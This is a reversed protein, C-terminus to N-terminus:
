LHTPTDDDAITELYADGTTSRDREGGSKGSSGGESSYEQESAFSGERSLGQVSSQTSELRNRGMGSANSDRYSSYQSSNYDSMFSERLLDDHYSDTYFDPEFRHLDILKGDTSKGWLGTTEPKLDLGGAALIDDSSNDDM